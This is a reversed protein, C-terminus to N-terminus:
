GKPEQESGSNPKFHYRYTFRIPKAQEDLEESPEEWYPEVGDLDSDDWVKVPDNAPGEQRFYIALSLGVLLGALHGEWSVHPQIPFVGWVLYGYFTIVILSIALLAKNRRIFGSLLLFFALSYVLGSAGIHYGDTQAFLWLLMGDLLWMWFLLEFAIKRYFYFLSTGLALLPISNSFIHEWDGHLLPAFLVGRLGVFSHGRVGYRYWDTGLYSELGFILLCVFVLLFPVFFAAQIRKIDEKM